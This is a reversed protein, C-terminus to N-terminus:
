WLLCPIAFLCMSLDKLFIYTLVIVPLVACRNSYSFKYFRVTPSTISCSSKGLVTPLLTCHHIAKSLVKGTECLRFDSLQLLNCHPSYHRILGLVSLISGGSRLRFCPYNGPMKGPCSFYPLDVLLFLGAKSRVNWAQGVLGRAGTSLQASKRDGRRASLTGTALLLM